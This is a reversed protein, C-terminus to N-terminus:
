SRALTLSTVSQAGANLLCIAALRVTVGTTYIDDIILYNKGKILPIEQKKIYFPNNQFWNIREARTKKSQKKDDNSIMREICSHWGLSPILQEVQNFGRNELGRKSLPIITVEYGKFTTSIISEIESQFIAGLAVDGRYKFQALVNKMFSNYRYISRNLILPDGHSLYKWRMCDTCTTQEERSIRIKKSCRNCGEALEFKNKCASCINNKSQTFLSRITTEHWYSKQCILCHNM